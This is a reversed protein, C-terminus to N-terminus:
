KIDSQLNRDLICLPVVSQYELQLNNHFLLSPIIETFRGKGRDIEVKRSVQIRFKRPSSVEHLSPLSGRHVSM